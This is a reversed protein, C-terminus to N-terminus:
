NYFHLCQFSILSRTYLSEFLIIVSTHKMTEQIDIFQFLAERVFVNEKKTINNDCPAAIIFNVRDTVSHGSKAM